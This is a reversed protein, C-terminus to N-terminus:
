FSLLNLTVAHFTDTNPTRRTRMKWCESKLHLSVGYRETNLGFAPFYTAVKVRITVNTFCESSAWQFTRVFIYHNFFDNIM